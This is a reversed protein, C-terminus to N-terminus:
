ARWRELVEDIVPQMRARVDELAGSADVIRYRAPDAAARALYTSRVADFFANPEREFRDLANRARARELGIEVPVDFVVVLDPRLAGQVWDELLAIRQPDIGRGGGQYAYTADTFRDSIVVRGHELAPRILAQLHQARAAFVLLLEADAAVPEDHDALLVGRIQEAVPTGGPERTLLPQCGAESLAEAFIKLNTSKGAGEPGEFTIFLGTM